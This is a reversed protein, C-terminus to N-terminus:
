IRRFMRGSNSGDSSGNVMSCNKENEYENEKEKSSYFTYCLISNRIIKKVQEKERGTRCNGEPEKQIQQGCRLYCGPVIIAGKIVQQIYANVGILNMVNELFGIIFAGAITGSVTGIGGTFSTGGVIAATLGTMEYGDAGNPLGSNNRAM